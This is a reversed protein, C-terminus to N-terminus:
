FTRTLKLSLNKLGKCTKMRESCRELTKIRQNKLLTNKKKKRREPLAKSSAPVPSVTCFTFFAGLIEEDKPESYLGIVLEQYRDM